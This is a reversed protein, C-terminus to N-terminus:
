SDVEVEEAAAAEAIDHALDDAKSRTKPASRDDPTVLDKDDTAPKPDQTAM